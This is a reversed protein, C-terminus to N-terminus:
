QLVANLFEKASSQKAGAESVITKYSVTVFKANRSRPHHMGLERVSAAIKLAFEQVGADDSSHSLVVLADGNETVLRAAVDSARKLCKRIAQAVRRQCTDAAHRGFVARYQEFDDLTFAVLALTARERSAVAWDHDLVSRFAKENLLGTVPDDRSLDRIKRKANKLAQRIDDDGIGAAGTRLYAAYYRADGKGGADIPKLVLLFEQSRIEVPVTAQQGTRITESLEMALDRGVLGELVDAFPQELVAETRTVGAFAPNCLVVPWDPSSVQAVVTAEGSHAILETLLNRSLAKM